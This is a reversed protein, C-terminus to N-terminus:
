GRRFDICPGGFHLRVEGAETLWVKRRCVTWYEGTVRERFRWFLEIAKARWVVRSRRLIIEWDPCIFDADAVPHLLFPLVVLPFLFGSLRDSWLNFSYRCSRLVLVRKGMICCWVRNRHFVGHQIM